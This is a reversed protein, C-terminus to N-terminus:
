IRYNIAEVECDVMWQLLEDGMMSEKVQGDYSGAKM